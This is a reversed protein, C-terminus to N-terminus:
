IEEVFKELILNLAKIINSILASYVMVLFYNKQKRIQFDQKSVAVSESNGRKGNRSQPRKML